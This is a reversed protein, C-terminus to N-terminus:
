LKQGLSEDVHPSFGMKKQCKRVYECNKMNEPCSNGLHDGFIKLNPLSYSILCWRRGVINSSLRHV